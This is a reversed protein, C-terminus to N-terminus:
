MDRVVFLGADDSDLITAVSTREYTKSYRAITSGRDEHKLQMQMLLAKKAGSTHSITPPSYKKYWRTRDKCLLM